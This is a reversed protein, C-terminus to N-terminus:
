DAEFVVAEDLARLQRSARLGGFICWLCFLHFAVSMWDQFLVFLLGDLSYLGMGLVFIWGMGRRAGFGFAAVVAAVILTMVFAVAKGILAADPNQQGVALAIGNIFQTIGLGVVFHRDGEMLLIITNVISLGAIWFFWNAGKQLQAELVERQALEGGNHLTPMEQSERGQEGTSDEPERAM